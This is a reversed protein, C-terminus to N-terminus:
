ETDSDNSPSGHGGGGPTRVTVTTGAEVDLTTKAGVPEGDILNQGCAGDEGGAVGRPAYRRRETLLSVTALVEIELQREIGKGGRFRGSGGSDDRLAYRTVRLPYEAELAEIPTNLTNTMGVQVGDMGDKTPRGGFGGGITEYYSFSEGDRSGITLNNMTGQSQAPLQNPIAEAFASLVTDTVRQSTEVNGGVVAAPPEPDLLSGPPIEVAIPEYCGHNPPIEPDTVARIVFYVASKTVARPANVNGVVQPATGAFDVSVSAEDVTVSACVPIDDDTIGDGELFERAEFTGNPLEALSREMRKRSYAIVADFAALLTDHGHDARLEGLRTEARENAAIQARLDARRESPNRVNALLLELVADNQEGGDVLKVPPIRLGEQYIERAGAPMSGPAMGGVDAHHARSVAFGLSEGGVTIPSVMTLDPLHTGGAFPDNLLWIDGPHPDRARIAEVAEPMAGLHVPIHEAQAILRGKSDFLATSCDRREKINPSYAGRILVQGMEEAVGELQNRMIELTIPDIGSM